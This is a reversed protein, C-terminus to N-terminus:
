GTSAVHSIPMGLFASGLRQFQQPADSSFYQYQSSDKASREMRHEQLLYAVRQACSAASDVIAVHDGVEQQIMEKLFPYHTCGLLITDIRHEQLPKLYEHVILRTAPHATFGEEVLPVFLPCAIPFVSAIPNLSLITKQYRQSQITGKTGLVAIRGGSSTRVANEAGPHITGVVPISLTHQLADLAHASATSCAVVLLKIGKETLFAANELSYRLVTEPSKTGYPLRGTDGFYIMHEQPLVHILQRMVTLGGIGSDFIGIPSEKMCM